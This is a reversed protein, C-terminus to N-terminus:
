SELNNLVGLSKLSEKEKWNILHQSSHNPQFHTHSQAPLINQSVHHHILPGNAEPNMIPFGQNSSLSGNPQSYSCHQNIDPTSLPISTSPQTLGIQQPNSNSDAHSATSIDRLQCAVNQSEQLSAVAETIGRNEKPLLCPEPAKQRFISYSERQQQSKLCNQTKNQLM